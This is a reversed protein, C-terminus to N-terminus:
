RAATGDHNGGEDGAPRPLVFTVDVTAAVGGDDLLREQFDFIDITGSRGHKRLLSTIEGEVAYETAAKLDRHWEIQLSGLLPGDEVDFGVAACLEAVSVGIGRQAGIFAFLPHLAHGSAPSGLVQALSSADEGTLVISGPRLVTGAVETQSMGAVM